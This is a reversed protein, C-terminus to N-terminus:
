TPCGVIESSQGVHCDVEERWTPDPVHFSENAGLKIRRYGGCIGEM